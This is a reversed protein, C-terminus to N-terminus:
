HKPNRFNLDTRRSRRTLTSTSRTVAPSPTPSGTPDPPFIEDAYAVCLCQGEKGSRDHVYVMQTAPSIREIVGTRVEATRTFCRDGERQICHQFRATIADGRRFTRRTEPNTVEEAGTPEDKIILRDRTVYLGAGYANRAAAQAPTTEPMTPDSNPNSM